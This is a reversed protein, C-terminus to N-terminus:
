IVNLVSKRIKWFIKLIKVTKLLARSINRTAKEANEKVYNNNEINVHKNVTKRIVQKKWKGIILTKWIIILVVQGSLLQLCAM